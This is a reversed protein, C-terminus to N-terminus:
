LIPVETKSARLEMHGDVIWIEVFPTEQLNIEIAKTEAENLVAELRVVTAAFKIEMADAFSISLDTTVRSKNYIERGNARLTVTDNKFGDRLKITLLM